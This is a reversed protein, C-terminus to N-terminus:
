YVTISGTDTAIDVELFGKGWVQPSRGRTEYLRIRGTDSNARVRLDTVANDLNLTISGTDSRFSSDGNLLLRGARIGGTDTRVSVTGLVGELDISGTDSKMFFWGSSGLLSLRGTNSTLNFTGESEEVRISGTDSHLRIEGTCDLATISGTDSRLDIPASISAIHQAGTNGTCSIRVSPPLNLVVRHPGASDSFLVRTDRTWLRLVGSRVDHSAKYRTGAPAELELRTVDTDKGQIFVEYIRMDDLVVERIDTYEFYTAERNGYAYVQAPVCLVLLYICLSMRPRKM